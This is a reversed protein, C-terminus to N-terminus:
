AGCIIIRRMVDLLTHIWWWIHIHDDVYTYTSMLPHRHDCAGVTHPVDQIFWLWMCMYRYYIVVCVFVFFIYTAHTTFSQFLYIFYTHDYQCRRNSIYEIYIHSFWWLVFLLLLLNDWKIIIFLINQSFVLNISIIIRKAEM